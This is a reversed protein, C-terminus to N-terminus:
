FIEGKEDEWKCSKCKPCYYEQVREREHVMMFILPGGCYKCKM